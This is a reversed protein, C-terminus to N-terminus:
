RKHEQTYDHVPFDYMDNKDNKQWIQLVVTQQSGCIKRDHCRSTVVKRM